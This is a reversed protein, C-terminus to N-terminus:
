LGANTVNHASRSLPRSAVRNQVSESLGLVRDLAQIFEQRRVPKPVYLKAGLALALEEERVVSCVIIPIARTAPHNHLHSLLEWGDADPLMVDLVIVDPAVAQITELARAGERVPVIHYRTGQVYRRSFLILDANDDVVLVKYATHPFHIVCVFQEDQTVSTLTGNHAALLEQVLDDMPLPTSPVTSATLTITIGEANQEAGVQVQGSAMRRVLESMTRVLIQRLESPHMAVSLGPRIPRVALTVHRRSAVAHVLEVVRAITDGVDFTQEIGGRELANLEQRVQVIRAPTEDRGQEAALYNEWLRQALVHIAQAQERRVHRPTIGLREATEEQTLKQIYRCALVDYLRRSRAAPPTDPPPALTQILRLISAQFADAECGLVNRLEIPPAYTPDYLHNLANQLDQELEDQGLYTRM